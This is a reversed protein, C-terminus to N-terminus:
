QEDEFGQLLIRPETRGGAVHRTTEKWELVCTDANSAGSRNGPIRRGVDRGARTRRFGPRRDGDDAAGRLDLAEARFEIADALSATAHNRDRPLRAHALGREDFRKECFQRAAAVGHADTAAATGLPEGPALRIQGHEFREVTELVMGAE